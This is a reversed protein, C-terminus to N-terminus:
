QGEYVRGDEWFMKCKGEVFESHSWQGDQYQGDSTTRVAKGHPRGHSFQGVIEEGGKYTLKGDGEM